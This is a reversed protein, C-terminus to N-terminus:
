NGPAAQLVEKMGAWNRLYTEEDAWEAILGLEVAKDMVRTLMEEDVRLADLGDSLASESVSRRNEGHGVRVIGGTKEDKWDTM